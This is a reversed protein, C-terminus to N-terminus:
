LCFIFVKYEKKKKAQEIVEKCILDTVKDVHSGGKATWISNVFSM